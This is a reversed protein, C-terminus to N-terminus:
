KPKLKKNLISLLVDPNVPKVLFADVDKPGSSGAGGLDPSGTFVIRVTKPSVKQLVPLIETGGMDPLRVDILAADFCNKEIQLLAEAGTEVATVTYGRKEFLRTFVKLIARDDDVILITRKPEPM